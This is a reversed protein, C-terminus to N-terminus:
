ILVKVVVRRNQARGDKTKNPAVPKEAGYSIVSIRHLPVGHKEYIYRKVAEARELGLKENYLKDGINDTHGEVEIYAGQPNAKIKSVVDDIATQAAAPVDAKGFTFNGQAESITVTYIVRKTAADIADAKKSAVDARAGAETASQQAKKADNQAQQATKDVEGIRGDITRTKEKNEDVSRSLDEVKTNVEAVNQRVFSKTACAPALGVVAASFAILALQKKM